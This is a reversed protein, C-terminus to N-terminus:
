TEPSPEASTSPMSSPDGTQLYATLAAHTRELLALTRPLEGELVQRLKAIRGRYEDVDRHVKIAVARVRDPMVLAAELRRKAARHAKEEEVCSPRDGAVTRVGANRAFGHFPSGDYAVVLRVRVTPGLDVSGADSPEFLTM